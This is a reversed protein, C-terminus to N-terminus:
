YREKTIYHLTKIFFTPRVMGDCLSLSAQSWGTGAMSGEYFCSLGRQTSHEELWTLNGRFHQVVIGPAVIDDTRSLNLKVSKGGFKVMYDVNKDWAERVSRKHFHRYIPYDEGNDYVRKPFVTISDSFQFDGGSVFIMVIDIFCNLENFYHM